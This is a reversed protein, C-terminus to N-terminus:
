KPHQQKYKAVAAKLDSYEECPFLCLKDLVALHEEAKALNGTMLYAEGIYEHAGRHKPNLALAQEYYKFAADLNGRNRESFGLLNYIEANKPDRAVAKTLLEIAKDWNKDAIAKNAHAVDPDVPASYTRSDGGSAPAKDPLAFASGLVLLIVLFPTFTKM